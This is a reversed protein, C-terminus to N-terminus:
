SAREETLDLFVTELNQEPRLESVYLGQEALARTVLAADRHLVRVHLFGDALTADFGASRLASLGRAQDEVRAIVSAEGSSLVDSVSGSAVVRGRALIAVRDCINEVESLLHSSVFVTRGEAGLSRLLERVQVIGAPDLGNAPEDLILLAPDKLLAAGIALRQRMGLSYSRVPDSAREALGAQEIIADIKKKGIGDLRGLLELNRRGSFGPFFAPSEVLAGVRGLVGALARKDTADAGM